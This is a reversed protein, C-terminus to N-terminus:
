RKYPQVTILLLIIIEYLCLTIKKERKVKEKVYFTSLNFYEKRFVGKFSGSVGCIVTFTM